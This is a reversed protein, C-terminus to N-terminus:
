ELCLSWQSAPVFSTAEVCVERPHDSVLLRPVSSILSWPAEHFGCLCAQSSSFRLIDKGKKVWKSFVLLTKIGLPSTPPTVRMFEAM